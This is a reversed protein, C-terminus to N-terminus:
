VANEDAAIAAEAREVEESASAWATFTRALGAEVAAYRATLVRVEEADAGFGESGMRQTLIKKEEELIEKELELTQDKNEMNMFVKFPQWHLKLFNKWNIDADGVLRASFMIDGYDRRKTYSHNGESDGYSTKNISASIYNEYDLLKDVKEHVADDPETTSVRYVIDKESHAPVSIGSFTLVGNSFSQSGQSTPVDLFIFYNRLDEKLTIGSIAEGSVNRIKIHVEFTDIRDFSIANDGGIVNIPLQNVVNRAIDIRQSFTYLLTNFTWQLQRSGSEIESVGGVTPLGLNCIIRGGNAQGGKLAFIVPRSDSKLKAIIEASGTTVKPISGSYLMDSVGVHAFAIPNTTSFASLEVLNSAAPVNDNFDVTGVYGTKQMFYAANGETYVTGGRSLFNDLKSKISSTITFISDIYHKDGDPAVTFAPIILLDTSDSLGSGSLDDENIYYYMDKFLFTEFMNKFYQAEWSISYGETEIKSRFVAIKKPTDKFQISRHDAAAWDYGTYPNSTVHSFKSPLDDPVVFNGQNAGSMVWYVSYEGYKPFLLADITSSTGRYDHDAMDFIMKYANLFDKQSGDTSVVQGKQATLHNGIFLFTIFLINLWRLRQAHFLTLKTM